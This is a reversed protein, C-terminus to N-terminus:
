PKGRLDRVGDQVDGLRKQADGQVKKITGRTRLKRDGTLTGLAEEVTGVTKNIAGQAHEKNVNTM